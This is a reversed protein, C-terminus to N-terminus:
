LNFQVDEIAASTVRLGYLIVAFLHTGPSRDVHLQFCFLLVLLPNFLRSPTLMSSRLTKLGMLTVCSRNLGRPILPLCGAMWRWSSRSSQRCSWIPSRRIVIPRWMLPDLSPLNLAPRRSRGMLFSLRRPLAPHSELSLEGGPLVFLPLARSIGVLM